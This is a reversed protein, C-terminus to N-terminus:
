KQRDIDIIYWKIKINLRLLICKKEKLFIWTKLTRSFHTQLRKFLLNLYKQPLAKMSEQLNAVNKSMQFM